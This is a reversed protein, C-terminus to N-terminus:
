GSLFVQIFLMNQNCRRAGADICSNCFHRYFKTNLVRSFISIQVFVTLSKWGNVIKGFLKKPFIFDSYLDFIFYLLRYFRHHQYYNTPQNTPQYLLKRLFPQSSKESKKCSTLPLTVFNKIQLYECFLTWILGFDSVKINKRLFPELSNKLKQGSTLLLYSRWNSHFRNKLFNAIKLYKIEFDEFNSQKKCKVPGTM